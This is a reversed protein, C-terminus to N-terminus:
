NIEITKINNIKKVQIRTDKFDFYLPAKTNNKDDSFHHSLFKIVDMGGTIYGQHKGFEYKDKAILKYTILGSFIIGIFLGLAIGTYFKKSM